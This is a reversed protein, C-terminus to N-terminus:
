TDARRLYPFIGDIARPSSASSSSSSLLSTTKGVDKDDGDGTDDSAVDGSADDNGRDGYVDGSEGDGGDGGGDSSADDNGRHGYVDGQLSYAAV